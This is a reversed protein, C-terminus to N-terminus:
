TTAKQEAQYAEWWALVEAETLTFSDRDFIQVVDFKFQQYPLRAIGSDCDWCSASLEPDDMIEHHESIIPTVFDKQAEDYVVRGTGNCKACKVDPLCDILICRALEAPGSGAYGWEFGDPSHRMYHKLPIGPKLHEGQDEEHVEVVARTIPSLGTDYKGTPERKGIYVKM